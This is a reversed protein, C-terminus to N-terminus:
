DMGVVAVENPYEVTFSLPLERKEGPQLQLTWKVVGNSEFAADAETPAQVKVYIREDRAVPIQDFVIVKAAVHKNNQVTLEYEYAIRKGKTLLGTAETFRRKRVRKIAIGDDAGLALDFKEGPMVTRLRAPAVFADDLFVNMDGALLPYDSNNRVESKLFAATVQKPVAVYEPEVDLRLSAIPVKQPANDSLVSAATPVKFSTSTARTEANAEVYEVAAKGNGERGAGASLAGLMLNGGTFSPTASLDVAGAGSAILSSPFYPAERMRAIPRAVDLTWDALEPPAGGLSPRATSLTLVVDRWDEDTNQRVIGFYGLQVSRDESAIRADYSPRWSAGWVAYSLTLDVTGARDASIRVTVKKFRRGGASRWQNLQNAAAEMRDSLDRGRADLSREEAAIRDRETGVFSLLKAAEDLTLRPASASPPATVGQVIRDIARSQTKLVKTRDDVICKEDTWGRVEVELSDIRQNPVYDMYSSRAAVDLLSARATGSGDARLSDELIRDPLPSFDIEYVGVGGISVHATRTVLARDLCVIVSSIKSEAPISQAAYLGGASALAAMGLLFRSFKM